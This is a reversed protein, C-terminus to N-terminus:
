CDVLDGKNWYGILVRVVLEMDNGGSTEFVNLSFYDLFQSM